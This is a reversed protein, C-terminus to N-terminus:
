KAVAWASCPRLRIAANTAASLFSSTAAL